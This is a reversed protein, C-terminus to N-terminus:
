GALNITYNGQVLWARGNPNYSSTPRNKEYAYGSVSIGSSILQAAHLNQYVKDYLSLSETSSSNSYCYIDFEIKQNGMGYNSTGKNYDIIILPMKITEDDFDYFHQSYVREEVIDTIDSVSLLHKRILLVSDSLSNGM